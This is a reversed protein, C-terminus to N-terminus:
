RSFLLNGPSLDFGFKAKTDVIQYGVGLSAFFDDVQKRNRDRCELLCVPKERRFFEVGGKLLSLEHGEVDIKIFGVGQYELDNLRITEVDFEQFSDTAVDIQSELSAWGNLVSGGCRPARLTATGARDSLAKNIITVAPLRARRLDETLARNPEFAVVSKFLQSHVMAYTWLGINAGVDIAVKGPRAFSRIRQVEPEWGSFQVHRRYQLGLRFRAPTLPVIAKDFVRGAYHALRSNM